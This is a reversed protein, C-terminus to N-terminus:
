KQAIIEQWEDRSSGCSWKLQLKISGKALIDRAQFDTSAHM